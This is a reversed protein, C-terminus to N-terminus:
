NDSDKRLELGLGGANSFYKKPKGFLVRRSDVDDVCISKMKGPM